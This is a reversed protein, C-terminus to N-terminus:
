KFGKKARQRYLQKDKLWVPPSYIRDYDRDWSIERNVIPHHHIIISNFSPKYKNLSKCRSMFEVDSFSHKYGTHLFEGDLYPLLKKHALWHTALEKLDHFQDNLGVMGWGDEFTNMVRIAEPICNETVETDDGLYLVLDYKTKNVLNKIMLNSGIRNEDVETVIEYLDKDMNIYKYISEICRDRGLPRICPIIISLM